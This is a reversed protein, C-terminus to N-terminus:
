VLIRGAPSRAFLGTLAEDGRRSRTFASKTKGLSLNATKTSPQKQCPQGRCAVFGLFLAANQRFFNAAFWARSLSTVRVKRDALQRTSRM